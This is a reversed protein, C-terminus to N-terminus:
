KVNSGSWGLKRALVDYPDYGELEVVKATRRSKCIEVSEGAAIGAVRVGDAYVGITAENGAARQRATVTFRMTDRVVLPRAGLAHPNAPTVVISRTDSLLVPGGAALSYATSGTPTALILGDALYRTVPRGDASLDLRVAHGSSERAVVVDNLAYGVARASSGVRVELLSRGSVRYRGATLLAIARGIDRRGVGALYGLGGLNIGLVPIGPCEHVARLFTGDGGLSIVTDAAGGDRVDHGLALLKGALRARVARVSQKGSNAFLRIRM